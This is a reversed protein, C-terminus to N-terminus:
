ALPVFTRVYGILDALADWQEKVAKDFQISRFKQNRCKKISHDIRLRVSVHKIYSEYPFMSQEPRSLTETLKRVHKDCCLNMREYFLPIAAPAWSKCVYFLPVLIFRM